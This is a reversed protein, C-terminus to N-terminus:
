CAILDGLDSLELKIKKLLNKLKRMLSSFSTGKNARITISRLVLLKRSWQYTAITKVPFTEIRKMKAAYFM